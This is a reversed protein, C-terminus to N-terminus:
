QLLSPLILAKHESVFWRSGRARSLVLDKVYGVCNKLVRGASVELLSKVMKKRSKEQWIM